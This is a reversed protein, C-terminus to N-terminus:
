IDALVTWRLRIRMITRTVEQRRIAVLVLDLPGEALARWVKSASRDASAAPALM